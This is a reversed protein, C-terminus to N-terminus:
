RLRIIELNRPAVTEVKFNKHIASAISLTKTPEGHVVIVKKPKPRLKKVYTLIENYDAHGSFGTLSYRELAVKVVEDNLKVEQDGRLVARGPSGEAQYNVFIVTNKPDPALHKFYEVSPGGNLMGSTALIVCPPGNLIEQREKASGVRKFLPNLLPNQEEYFVKERVEAGLFSPYVAHVATVDWVMGDVYVPADFSGERAAKDLVLLIEQSRGVGLTPILVKGGRALTKKIINMQELECEERPPMIDEPSGYTSEIMLSEVRPFTTKAGNLLLSNEVKLDGTYLFNHWGDGIHLHVLASGLIHGANYLTLRVDPTIDTVEEFDLTITHKVAEKVDAATYLPKGMHSLEIYDLALLALIDRTPETCYVPGRYGIKFLYPLFGSHDLHAHSIIVADLDEIHFEPANLYPYAYRGIAAVNLGCDILINSEPTQLLVASRGVERGAGLISIRAWMDEGSSKRIEYIRKGVEHLFKRRYASETFLVSRINSTIKSPILGERRVYPTWCTEEKIKRLLEANKSIVLGPRKAEITVRSRATEFLIQTIEAEKPVLETIFKQSEEQSKRISEDARLDIRKKVESVIQRIVDGGNIFFDKNKTYLVINAGEYNSSVIEANKPLKALIENLIAM